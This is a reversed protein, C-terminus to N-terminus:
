NPNLGRSTFEDINWISSRIALVVQDENNIDFLLFPAVWFHSGTGEPQYKVLSKRIEGQLHMDMVPTIIKASFFVEELKTHSAFLKSIKRYLAILSRLNDEPDPGCLDVLIKPVSSCLEELRRHEAAMQVYPASPLIKRFAPYAVLDEAKEHYSFVALLCRSFRAYGLLDTSSPFGTQLYEAGRVTATLLSKSIIRHIQILDQALSSSCVIM